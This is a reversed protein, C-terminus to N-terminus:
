YIATPRVGLHIPLDAARGISVALLTAALARAFARRAPRGPDANQGPTGQM